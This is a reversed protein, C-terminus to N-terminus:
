FKNAKTKFSKLKIFHHLSLAFFEYIKRVQHNNNYLRYTRDPDKPVRHVPAQWAVRYMPNGLCSYQLPNGYGEGSSRGSEPISGVDRASAVPNKVM